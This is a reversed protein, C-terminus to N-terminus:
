EKKASDLFLIMERSLHINKDEDEDSDTEEKIATVTKENFVCKGKATAIRPCIHTRFLLLSEVRVRQRTGFIQSQKETRKSRENQQLHAHASGSKRKACSAATGFNEFLCFRINLNQM